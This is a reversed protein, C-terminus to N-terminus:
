RFVSGYDVTESDMQSSVGRTGPLACEVCIPPRALDPCMQSVLFRAQENIQRTQTIVGFLQTMFSGGMSRISASSAADNAQQETKGAAKAACYATAMSQAPDYRWQAAAPMAATIVLVAALFGKM